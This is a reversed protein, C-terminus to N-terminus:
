GGHARGQLSTVRALSRLRATTDQELLEDVLRRHREDRPWLRLETAQGCARLLRRLTGTTPDRRGSEYAAIAAQSTGARSGLARQSLGARERADRLVGPVDM